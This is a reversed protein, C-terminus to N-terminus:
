AIHPDFIQIIENYAITLSQTLDARESESLPKTRAFSKLDYPHSGPLNNRRENVKHFADAVNPYNQVFDNMNHRSVLTGFPRRNGNQHNIQVNNGPLNNITLTEIMALFLSNNFSNQDSLWKDKSKYYLRDGQKLIGLAHDYEFALLDKWKTWHDVGYRNTLIEGVPDINTSATKRILGLEKYINKTQSKISKATIGSDRPSLGNRHFHPGLMMSPEFNTKGFYVKMVQSQTLIRPPLENALVAKNFWTSESQIFNSLAGHGEQEAKILFLLAGMRALTNDSKKRVENIAYNIHTKRHANTINSISKAMFFWAHARVFDFRNWLLGEVRKRVNADDIYNEFFTFIEETFQLNRTLNALLFSKIRPSPGSRKLVYKITSKILLDGTKEDVSDFFITEAEDRGLDELDSEDEEPDGSEEFTKFDEISKIKRISIKASQPILGHKKCVVDTEHLNNMVSHKTFGFFRFDDAYRLYFINKKQITKDIDHLFVEALFDSAIPGQPIGHGKQLTKSTSTWIEFCDTLFERLSNQKKPLLKRILLQHCISDYFAALDFDMMWVSGALFLNQSQLQFDNYSDIWKKFFFISNQSRDLINSFVTKGEHLLREESFKNAYLNAIAQLIIQDEITMLSIPRVLGSSKPEYIMVPPQPKYSGGIIRENLHKLNEDLSLDYTNYMDRFYKKYKGNGASLIRNWALHLNEIKALQNLTAM